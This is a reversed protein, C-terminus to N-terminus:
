VKRCLVGRIFSSTPAAPLSLVPPLPRPFPYFQLYPGHSPISIFSSKKKILKFTKIYRQQYQDRQRFQDSQYQDFHDRTEETELKIEEKDLEKEKEQVVVVGEEGGEGPIGGEKSYVDTITHARGKLQGTMYMCIVPYAAGARLSGASSEVCIWVDWYFCVGIM